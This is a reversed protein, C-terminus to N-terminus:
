KGTSGFGGSRSSNRRIHMFKLENKTVSNVIMDERRVPIIQAIREGFSFSLSTKILLTSDPLYQVAFKLNDPYSQDITGYLPHCHRKAFVSSRPVLQLWWGEPCFVNFGLNILKYQSPSISIGNPEACRVDWGTDDSNAKSPLFMEPTIPVESSHLKNHKECLDTLNEDLAFYFEPIKVSM